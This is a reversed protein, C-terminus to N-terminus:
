FDNFHVVFKLIASCLIERVFRMLFKLYWRVQLRLLVGLPSIKALSGCLNCYRAVGLCSRFEFDVFHFGTAGVAANDIDNHYSIIEELTRLSTGRRTCDTKM